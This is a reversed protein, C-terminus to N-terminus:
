PDQRHCRASSDCFFEEQFNQMFYWPDTHCGTDYNIGPLSPRGWNDVIINHIFHMVYGSSVGGESFHRVIDEVARGM